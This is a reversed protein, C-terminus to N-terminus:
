IIYIKAANFLLELLGPVNETYVVYIHPEQKESM